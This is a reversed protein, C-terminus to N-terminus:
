YSDLLNSLYSFNNIIEIDFGNYTGEENFGGVFIDANLYNESLISISKRREEIPSSPNYGASLYIIEPRIAQAIQILNNNNECVGICDVCFGKISFIVASVLAGIENLEGKAGSILVRRTPQSKSKVMILMRILKSKMILVLNDYFEDDSKEDKSQNCMMNLLPSFLKNLFEIPSVSNECKQFEEILKDIRKMKIATYMSQLSAEWSFHSNDLLDKAKAKIKSAESGKNYRELVSALAVKELNAIDSISNGIEVLKNLLDLRQIEHDSYMRRGNKDRVPVTAGYRKEWARITHPNIGTVNSVFQISYLNKDADRNYM